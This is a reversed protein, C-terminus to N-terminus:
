AEHYRLSCWFNIIISLLYIYTFLKDKDNNEFYSMQGQTEGARAFDRKNDKMYLIQRENM